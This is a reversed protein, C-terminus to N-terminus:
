THLYQLAGLLVGTGAGWRNNHLFVTHVLCIIGFLIMGWLPWLAFGTALALLLEFM